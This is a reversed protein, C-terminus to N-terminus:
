IGIQRVLTHQYEGERTQSQTEFNEVIKTTQNGQCPERLTIDRKRNNSM